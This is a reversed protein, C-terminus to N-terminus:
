SAATGSRSRSSCSTYNAPNGARDLLVVGFRRHEADFLDRRTTMGRSDILEGSLDYSTAEVRHDYNDHRFRRMATGLNTAPGGSTGFYRAEITRGADDHSMREAHFGTNSCEVAVGKVDFCSRAILNGLDDWANAREFVHYDVDTSPAGTASYHTESVIHGAADLKYVFRATQRKSCALPREAISMCTDSTIACRADVEYDHGHVNARSIVGKGYPDFRRLSVRCGREDVRYTSVSTGSLDAVLQDDSGICSSKITAGREDRETRRGHCGDGDAIPKGGADRYREVVTRGYEDLQKLTLHVRDHDVTPQGDVGFVREEIIFGQPDRVFRAIAVGEIDSMPEGTWQLCGREVIRGKADLKYSEYGCGPLANGGNRKRGSYRHEQARFLLASEVRAYADFQVRQVPAGDSGVVYVYTADVHTGRVREAVVLGKGRTGVRWRDLESPRATATSCTISLKDDECHAHERWLLSSRAPLAFALPAKPGRDPEELLFIQDTGARVPTPYDPHPGVEPLPSGTGVKAKPKAPAADPKALVPLPPRQELEVPKEKCGLAVMVMVVLPLRM